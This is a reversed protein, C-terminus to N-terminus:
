YKTEAAIKGEREVLAAHAPSRPKIKMAFPAKVHETWNTNHVDIPQDEIAEFEFCYLLRAVAIWVNSEGVHYGPCVRRGVGFGWHGKLPDELDENLYREPWFRLPDEYEEENLVIGSANWTFVTGKPFRYGEYEDDETLVHPIGIEAVPKWRLAEKTVATIYPLQARDSFSPLREANSGCVSDLQERATKVWRPDVCAAALVQTITNRSSDSGAELLSGLSFLFQTEGFKQSEPDNMFQLAYCDRATGAEVKAKLQAVERQYVRKCKEQDRLGRSRWWQLWTPLKELIPWFDVINAGPQMAQFIDASTDLLEKTDPHGLEQRKGFVVSMVVSNAYRQNALVWKDPSHLYDYLLHKSEIDQFPAFTPANKANLISHMAKRIARWRDNYPMLVVRSSGSMLTSAMPLNLRSSYIAARKKLLDTVVRSSNLFVWTNVGFKCTFMDGYKKRQENGWVGQHVAPLQFTNGFIPIGPIRNPFKYKKNWRYNSVLRDVVMVTVLVIVATAWSQKGLSSWPPLSVELPIM